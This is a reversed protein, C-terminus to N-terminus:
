NITLKYPNNKDFDSASHGYVKIYVQDGLGIQLGLVDSGGPGFDNPKYTEHVKGNASIYILDFDYNQNQPSELLVSISQGSRNDYEYWDVDNSDSITHSMPKYIKIPVAKDQTDGYGDSAFASQTGMALAALVMCSSLIRKFSHKM